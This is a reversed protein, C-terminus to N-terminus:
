LLDISLTSLILASCYNTLFSITKVASIQFELSNFPIHTREKCEFIKINNSHISLLTHIIIKVKWYKKLFIRKVEDKVSVRIGSVATNFFFWVALGVFM